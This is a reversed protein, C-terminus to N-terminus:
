VHPRPLTRLLPSFYPQFCSRCLFYSFILRLCPCYHFYLRMLATTIYMNYGLTQALRGYVCIVVRFRGPKHGCCSRCCSLWSVAFREFCAINYCIRAPFSYLLVNKEKCRARLSRMSADYAWSSPRAFLKAPSLLSEGVIFMGLTCFDIEQDAGIEAEKEPERETEGTEKAMIPPKRLPSRPNTYSSWTKRKRRGTPAALSVVALNLRSGQQRGQLRLYSDLKLPAARLEYCRPRQADIFYRSLVYLYLDVM